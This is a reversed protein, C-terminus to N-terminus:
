FGKYLVYSADNSNLILNCSHLVSVQIDVVLGVKPCFDKEKELITNKISYCNRREELVCIVLEENKLFVFFLNKKEEVVRIVLEEKKLFAFFL